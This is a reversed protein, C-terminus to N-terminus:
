ATVGYRELWEKGRPGLAWEHGKRTRQVVKVYDGNLLGCLRSSASNASCGASKALESTLAKREALVRMIARTEDGATKGYKRPPPKQGLEPPVPVHGEKRALALMAAAYAKEYAIHKARVNM